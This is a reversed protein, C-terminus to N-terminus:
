RQKRSLLLCGVHAIMKLLMRVQIYLSFPMKYLMSRLTFLMHLICRCHTCALSFWLAHAGGYGDGGSGGDGGGGSGGDGSVWQGVLPAVELSVLPNDLHNVWKFNGPM